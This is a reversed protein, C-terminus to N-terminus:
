TRIIMIILLHLQVVSPFVPNFLHRLEVVNFLFKLLLIQSFRILISVKDDLLAAGEESAELGVFLNVVWLIFISCTLLVFRILAFYGFVEPDDVLLAFFVISLV